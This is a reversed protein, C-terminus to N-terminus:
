TGEPRACGPPSCSIDCPTRENTTDLGISAWPCLTGTPVAAAAALRLLLERRGSIKRPTM